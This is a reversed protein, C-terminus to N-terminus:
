PVVFTIPQRRYSHVVNGGNLAAIWNPTKKILRIAEAEMGFGHSTEAVMTGVTGTRTVVFKVIVTYSGSPAGNNIPTNARLHRQLFNRWAVDGGTFQAEVEVKTYIKDPRPTYTNEPTQCNAQLSFGLVVSTVLILKKMNM